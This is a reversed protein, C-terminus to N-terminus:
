TCSSTCSSPERTYKKALQALKHKDWRRWLTALSSFAKAPWSRSKCLWQTRWSSWWLPYCLAALLGVSLCVFLSLSLSLSRSNSLSLLRHLSSVFGQSHLAYGVHFTISHPHRTRMTNPPCIRTLLVKLAASVVVNCNILLIAEWSELEANCWFNFM